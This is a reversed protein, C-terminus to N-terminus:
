AIDEYEEVTVVGTLRPLNTTIKQKQSSDAVIITCGDPVGAFFSELYSNLMKNVFDFSRIDLEELSQCNNFISGFNNSTLSSTTNFNSLNIKKLSICGNFINKLGSKNFGESGSEVIEEITGLNSLDVEELSSCGNFMSSINRLISMDFEFNSLDIQKLSTYNNFMSGLSEFGTYTLAPIKTINKIFSANVLPNMVEVKLGSGGGGGSSKKGLLYSVVDM